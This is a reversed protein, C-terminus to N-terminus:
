EREQEKVYRQHALSLGRQEAPTLYTFTAYEQALRLRCLAPQRQGLAAWVLYLYWCPRAEEQRALRALTLEAAAKCLLGEAPLEGEEPLDFRKRALLFLGIGRHLHESYDDACAEAIEVLRGHCHILERALAARQQQADEIFREFQVRAEALKNSRLLLEAYRSRVLAEGPHAAVYVALHECARHTNEKELYAVALSLHSCAMNPDAALSQEYFQIAADPLGLRMAVQGKQWLRGAESAEESNGAPPVCYCNFGLLLLVLTSRLLAM